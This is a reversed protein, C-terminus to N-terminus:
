SKVQELRADIVRTVLYSGILSVVIGEVFIFLSATVPTFYERYPARTKLLEFFPRDLALFLCIAVTFLTVGIISTYFGASVGLLYNDRTSPFARRYDRIALYIFGLHIFGNLVRLYYHQSWGLLHVFLFLIAFGAFMLTGYKLAIKKM